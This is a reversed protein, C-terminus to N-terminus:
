INYESHTSEDIEEYIKLNLDKDITENIHEGSNIIVRGSYKCNTVKADGSIECLDGIKSNEVICTDRASSAVTFESNHIIASGFIKTTNKICSKLSVIADDKIEAYNLVISDEVLANGHVRCHDTIFSNNVKATGFVLAVGSLLSGNTIKATDFVRASNELWVPEDGLNDLSEVYGGIDYKQITKDHHPVKFTRTAIIRYLTVIKNVNKPHRMKISDHDLLACYSNEKM